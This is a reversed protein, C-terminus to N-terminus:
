EKSPELIICDILMTTSYKKKNTNNRSWYSEVTIQLDPSETGYSCCQTDITGILVTDIKLPDNMFTKAGTGM